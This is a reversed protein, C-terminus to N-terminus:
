AFLELDYVWRTSTSLNAVGVTDKRWAKLIKDAGYGPAWGLTISTESRDAVYYGGDAGNPGSEWVTFGDDVAFGYEASACRARVAVRSPVAGLTHAVTQYGGVSPFALGTLTQKRAGGTLTTGKYARVRLVSNATTLQVLGSPGRVYLSGEVPLSVGYQTANKIVTTMATTASGTDAPGLGIETGIPLGAVAATLVMQATVERPTVGLGHDQLYCTSYAWSGIYFTADPAGSNIAAIKANQTQTEAILAAIDAEAPTVAANFAKICYLVAVYPPLNNHAAGSGSTSTLANPAKSTGDAYTGAHQSCTVGATNSGYSPSRGSQFAFGEIHNHAPMEAATLVHAAEGGTTSLDYLGGGGIPMRDVMNPLNFTTSGDGDGYTTGIAAFLDPYVTRSVATGSCELWGLPATSLAFAVIQGVPTADGVAAGFPTVIWNNPDPTENLTFRAGAGDPIVYSAVGAVTAPDDPHPIVTVTNAGKRQVIVSFGAEADEPHLAADSRPLTVVIAQAASTAEFVWGNESLAVQHDANIGDGNMLPLSAAIAAVNAEAAVALDAAGSAEAAKTTATAAGASAVGASTAAASAFAEAADAATDPDLASLTLAGDAAFKLARGAIPDPLDLSADSTSTPPRKVTRALEERLQQAMCVIRDLEENIVNARFAGGEQFDTTREIPVLRALTVIVGDGPAASFTVSGGGSAGAGSVTYGSTQLVDDLYVMLDSNEFIPFPYAFVTVSGNATYQIRPSIDGIQIDAM